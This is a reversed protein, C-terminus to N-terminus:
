DNVKLLLDWLLVGEGDPLSFNLPHVAVLEEVEVHWWIHAPWHVNCGSAVASWWVAWSPQAPSGGGWARTCLPMAFMPVSCIRILTLNHHNHDCSWWVSISNIVGDVLVSNPLVSKEDDDTQFSSWFVKFSVYFWFGNKLQRQRGANLLMRFIRSM